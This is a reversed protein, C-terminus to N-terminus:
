LWQSSFAPTKKGFSPLNTKVKMTTKLLSALFSSVEFQIIRFIETPSQPFCSFAAGESPLSSTDTVSAQKRKKELLQYLLLNRDEISQSCFLIQLVVLGAHDRLTLPASRLTM